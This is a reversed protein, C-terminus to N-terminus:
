WARLIYSTYTNQFEQDWFIGDISSASSPRKKNWFTKAFSIMIEQLYPTHTIFNDHIATYHVYQSLSASEKWPSQWAILGNVWRLSLCHGFLIFHVLTRGGHTGTISLTDVPRIIPGTVVQLVGGPSHGVRCMNTEHGRVIGITLAERFESPLLKASSNRHYPLLKESSNRHYSCKLYFFSYFVMNRFYM